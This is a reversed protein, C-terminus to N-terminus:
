LHNAPFRKVQLITSLCSPRLGSWCSLALTLALGRGAPKAAGAASVNLEPTSIGVPPRHRPAYGVLIGNQGQEPPDADAEDFLIALVASADVIM